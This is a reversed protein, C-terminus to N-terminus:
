WNVADTGSSEIVEINGWYAELVDNHGSGHLIYKNAMM